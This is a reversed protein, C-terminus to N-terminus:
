TMVRVFLKQRIHRVSTKTMDSIDSDLFAHLVFSGDGEYELSEFVEKLNTEVLVKQLEWCGDEAHAPMSLLPLFLSVLMLCLCLRALRRSMKRKM